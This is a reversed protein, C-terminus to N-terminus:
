HHIDGGLLSDQVRLHGAVEVLVDGLLFLLDQLHRLGAGVHRLKDLLRILLLKIALLLLLEGRDGCRDGLELLLQRDGTLAHLDRALRRM